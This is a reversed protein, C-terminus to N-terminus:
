GHNYANLWIEGADKLSHVIDAFGTLLPKTQYDIGHKACMAKVLPAVKWFNHRPMTPFLHHEIQFNLHGTIWDNFFSQKVNCTAQLQTSFWDLNRDYDIHMPIHNMQSIWTFLVSKLINLLLIYGMAGKLGMIPVFAIFFRVFYAMSWAMERWLKRKFIFYLSYIQFLPKVIPPMTIFFYKHQHNYPMYKKKQMGLELSLPKGLSFLMPHFTLDPDKPFCNPKAHHQAHHLTWWNASLGKLHCMVFEQLIHNWKRNKFVSLHGFDHQLWGAQSQALTLLVTAISFTKLSIGFHWLVFWGAADLILIHLLLLFFYLKNPKFLGLKEATSRLERFDEVILKNKSPEFSPQDSALEGILLPKMYKRVLTKDPHFATFPDTADQGAYHSIVRSGGPHRRHFQSIDYVKRDIVLWREAPPEGQAGRLGIEAWSFQRLCCSREAGGPDPGRRREALDRQSAM